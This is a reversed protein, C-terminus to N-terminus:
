KPEKHGGYGARLASVVKGAFTPKEQSRQRARLADTLVDAEVGFEEAADATWHGTQGGGVKGEFGDLQPDKALAQALLEMLWGRVVSGHTWNEAIQSYNLSYPGKSLIEFGEGIAQNMGYEVGNHVMKVFHGAGAPGFHAFGDKAAAATWLWNLRRVAEADGGVMLCAGSRAGELGGSTGCDIFTIGEKKLEEYRRLSDKYFCNGGDIITDGRTLGAKRLAAIMEDVPKGDPVMLWIVRPPALSRLVDEPAYAPIVATNEKAFEETKERTRNYAIVRIGQELLHLVMNKGMRGLGIFGLELKMTVDYLNERVVAIHVL